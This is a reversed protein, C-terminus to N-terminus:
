STKSSSDESNFNDDFLYDLEERLRRQELLDEIARRAKLSFSRAPQAKRQKLQELDTLDAFAQEQDDDEFAHEKNRANMDEELELETTPNLDASSHLSEADEEHTEKYSM